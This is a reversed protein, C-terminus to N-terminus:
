PYQYRLADVEGISLYRKGTQCYGATSFMVSLLVVGVGTSESVPIWSLELGSLVLSAM